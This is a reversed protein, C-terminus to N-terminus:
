SVRCSPVAGAVMPATSAAAEAAKGGVSSSRSKRDRENEKEGERSLRGSSRRPREGNKEGGGGGSFRGGRDKAPPPASPSTPM